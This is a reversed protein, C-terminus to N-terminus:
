IMFFVSVAEMVPLSSMLFSEFSQSSLSPSDKTLIRVLPLSPHSSDRFSPVGYEEYRRSDGDISSNILRAYARALLVIEAISMGDFTVTLSPPPPEQM